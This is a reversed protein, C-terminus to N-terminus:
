SVEVVALRAWEVNEKDLKRKPCEYTVLRERDEYVRLHAPERTLDILVLRKNKRM